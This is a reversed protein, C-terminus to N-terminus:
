YILFLMERSSLIENYKIFKKFSKQEYVHINEKVILIELITILVLNNKKNEQMLGTFLAM